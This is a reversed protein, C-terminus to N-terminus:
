GKIYECVQYRKDEIRYTDVAHKCGRCRGVASQGWLKKIQKLGAFLFNNLRMAQESLNEAETRPPYVYIKEGDIYICKGNPPYSYFEGNWYEGDMIRKLINHRRFGEDLADLSSIRLPCGRVNGNQVSLISYNKSAKYAYHKNIIGKKRKEEEELKQKKLLEEKAKLREQDKLYVSDLRPNHLWYKLRTDSGLFAILEAEDLDQGALSVEICPLGLRRLKELKNLDVFHTNAFEILVKKGDKIGIADAIILDAGYGVTKELVVEDFTVCRGTKFLSASNDHRYDHHYNPLYIQKTKLLIAKALLHLTTEFAGDCEKGSYHAFHPVKKNGLGNKAVLPHHCNPCVCNCALGTEVNLIHKLEGGLLGYKLLREM